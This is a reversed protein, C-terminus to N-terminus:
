CRLDQRIVAVINKVCKSYRKELIKRSQRVNDIDFIRGLQRLGFSKFGRFLHNLNIPFVEASQSTDPQTAKSEGFHFGLVSHISFTKIM